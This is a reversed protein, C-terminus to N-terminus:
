PEAALRQLEALNQQPEPRDPALRVAEEMAAIGADFDGDLALAIGLRQLHEPNRPADNVVAELTTRAMRIAETRDPGAPAARAIELLLRGQEGRLAPDAPSRDLGAQIRELALQLDGDQRAARAGIFLYRISDPRLQAAAQAGDGLAESRGLRANAAVDLTAAATVIVALGVAAGAAVAQLLGNTARVRPRDAALAPLLGVALWLMPDVESLPFLFQQQFVYGIVAIGLGLAVPDGSKIADAAARVVLVLMACFLLAGPIGFALAVDLVANHSRDTIVEWGWRLVYQDDVNQGFVTRYGEPGYGFVPAGGLARLGVQWEDIRGALVGDAGFAGSVRQRLDPILAVLLVFAVLAGAATRILLRHKNRVEADSRALLVLAVVAALVLGAWAARSQSTLIALLSTVAGVGGVLRWGTEESRDAALGAAVPCVLLAAAGLFAPQGFPGGTRGGAFAVDITPWVPGSGVQSGLWELLAYSGLGAAGFAFGRVILQRGRPGQLRAALFVGGCLVWTLWGFRRDPTGIWAYLRDVALLSCLAGWVLVAVWLRPLATRDFLGDDVSRSVAWFGCGALVLLRIPGFHDWGFPDVILPWVGAMIALLWGASRSAPQLQQPFQDTVTSLSSM